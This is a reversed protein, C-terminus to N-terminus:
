PHYRAVRHDGSLFWVDASDGFSIQRVQMGRDLQVCRMFADFRCLGGGYGFWISGDRSAALATPKEPANVSRHLAYVRKTKGSLQILADDGPIWLAGRRDVAFELPVDNRVHILRRQLIRFLNGDALRLYINDDAGTRMENAFGPLIQRQVQKGGNTIEVLQDHAVGSRYFREVVWPNDDKVAALAVARGSHPLHSRMNGNWIGETCDAYWPDRKHGIALGCLATTSLSEEPRFYSLDNAFEGAGAYPADGVGQIAILGDRAFAVQAIPRRTLPTEAIDFDGRLANAQPAKGAFRLRIIEHGNIYWLAGDAAFRYVHRGYDRQADSFLPAEACTVDDRPSIRCLRDYAGTWVAGDPAVLVPMASRVATVIRLTPRLQLYRVAGDTHRHYIGDADIKWLSGDGSVAVPVGGGWKFNLPRPQRDVGSLEVVDDRGNTLALYAGAWSALFYSPEGSLVFPSARRQYAGYQPLYLSFLTKDRLLWITGGADIRVTNPTTRNEGGSATPVGAQVMSEDDPRPNPDPEFISQVFCTVDGSALPVCYQGYPTVDGRGDLPAIHLLPRIFGLRDVRGLLPNAGFKEIEIFWAGSSEGPPKWYSPNPRPDNLPNVISVGPEYPAVDLLERGYGNIPFHFREVVARSARYSVCKPCTANPGDIGFLLLSGAVTVIRLLRNM